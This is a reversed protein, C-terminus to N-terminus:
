IQSNQTYNENKQTPYHILINNNVILHNKEKPNIKAESLRILMKSCKDCSHLTNQNHRIFCYGKPLGYERKHIVEECFDCKFIFERGLFM